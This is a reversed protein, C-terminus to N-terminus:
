EEEYGNLKNFETLLKPYKPGLMQAVALSLVRSQTGHARGKVEQQIM